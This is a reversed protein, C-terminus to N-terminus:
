WGRRRQVAANAQIPAVPRIGAKRGAYDAWCVSSTALAAAYNLLTIDASLPEGKAGHQPMQWYQPFIRTLENGPLRDPDIQVTRGTITWSFSYMDLANGTHSGAHSTSLLSDLLSHGLVDQTFFGEVHFASPIALALYPAIRDAEALMPSYDLPDQGYLLRFRTKHSNGLLDNYRLGLYGPSTTPGPIEGYVVMWAEHASQALEPVESYATALQTGWGGEWVTPAGDWPDPM